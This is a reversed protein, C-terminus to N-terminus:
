NSTLPWRKGSMQVAEAGPTTVGRVFAMASKDYTVVCLGQGQRYATGKTREEPSLPQTNVLAVCEDYTPDREATWIAAPGSDSTLVGSGSKYAVTDIGGLTDVKPPQSSMDMGQTTVRVTGTWTPSNPPPQPLPGTIPAPAQGGVAPQGQSSYNNSYGTRSGAAAITVATEIAYCGGFILVLALVALYVPRPFRRRHDRWM